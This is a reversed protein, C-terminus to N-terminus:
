GALSQVHARAAAPAMFALLAEPPMPRAFHFGQALSCGAARLIGAHEETEVGEAVVAKGLQRGLELVAATIAQSGPDTGIARIFSQDIKIIDIPYQQLHTLSAYGTGFDDLAIRVGAARLARVTAEIIHSDKGFLLTETLEVVFRDPPVGGERLKALLREAFDPVRAIGISVNIAVYPPASGADKWHRYDAIIHQLLHEGLQTALEVDQYASLFSAPTLLGHEPHQWRMLAEVGKLSGDSLSVIPQYFPRFQGKAAGERVEVLQTIRREMAARMKPEFCVIQNRGRGKGEYLALDADQLLAAADQSRDTFLVIGFTARTDIIRGAVAFPQRLKALAAEAMAWATGRDCCPLLIAFEDGGLRSVTGKEGVSRRLREGVAKLLADGAPHGLSDNVDKFGDLDVLLLAGGSAVTSAALLAQLRTHFLMRNPLGTLEDHNALQWIREEAAHKDSIDTMCGVFRLPRHAADRVMVGRDWFWRYSGDEHRFRYEESWYRGTGATVAALRAEVEQRDEPHVRGHWWTSDAEFRDSDIGFHTRLDGTWEVRDIAGNWEWIVDGTAEAVLAYQEEREEIGDATSNFASALETFTGFGKEPDLRLGTEGAAYRAILRTAEVIPGDLRGALLTLSIGAAAATIAIGAIVDPNRGGAALYLLAVLMAPVAITAALDLALRLQPQPRPKSSQHSRCVTM